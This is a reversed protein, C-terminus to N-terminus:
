SVIGEIFSAIGRYIKDVVRSAHLGWQEFTSATFTLLLSPQYHNFSHVCVTHHVM